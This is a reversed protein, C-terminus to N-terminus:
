EYRLSTIPDQLAAKRAPMIGFILGVGASVVFSVVVSGWSILTQIDTVLTIVFSIIVGLFIGIFGGTLSIIVAELLFQMIIDGQTAGMSMRIGIEKIREFVSALMINMIGIGGVLLSIFAISLLVWNFIDKSRQQQKLLLEPIVIEFDPVENHRRLLMKELLSGGQTLQEPERMQVIIRDLDHYSKAKSGSTYVTMGGDSEMTADTGHDKYRSLFTNIPIYVDNNYDRINASKAASENVGIKEIVGIVKLWHNGCKMYKGLANEGRFLLAEVNKGIICVPLGYSMQKQNFGNGKKINFHFIDFFQMETGILNISKQVDKYIANPKLSAEPCVHAVEPVVKIIAAVDNLSLGPSYRKKSTSEAEESNEDGGETEEVVAKIEINNVGVMKLQDLIEQQAGKGIAMMAIVAAVGFIIGLATLVSRFLNGLVADSAINFNLLLRERNM